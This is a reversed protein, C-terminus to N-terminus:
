TLPMYFLVPRLVVFGSDRLQHNNDSVNIDNKTMLWITIVIIMENMM